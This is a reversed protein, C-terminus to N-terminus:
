RSLSQKVPVDHVNAFGQEHAIMAIIEKVTGNEYAMNLGGERWLRGLDGREKYKGFIVPVVCDLKLEGNPRIIFVNNLRYESYLQVALCPDMSILVEMYDSYMEKYQGVEQIIAEKLEKNVEISRGAGMDFVIGLHIANVGLFLALEFFAELQHRNEHMIATAMKVYFGYKRLNIIARVARDFAGKVGRIDDHVQSDPGDLSIQVWNISKRFRALSRVVEEEFFWGNSIIGMRIDASDFIEVLKMVLPTNLFPEGGSIVVAFIESDVLEQAIDLWKEEPMEEHFKHKSREGSENFCHKCNLNCRYTFELQVGTPNSYKEPITGLIKNRYWQQQLATRVEIIPEM